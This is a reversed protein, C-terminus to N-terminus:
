LGEIRYGEYAVSDHGSSAFISALRQMQFRIQAAGGIELETNCAQVRLWNIRKRLLSRRTGEVRLMADRDHFNVPSSAHSVRVIM